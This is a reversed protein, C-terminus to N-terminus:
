NTQVHASSRVGVGAQRDGPPVKKEPTWIRIAPAHRRRGEQRTPHRAASAWLPLVAAALGGRRGARRYARVLRELHATTGERAMALLDLETEPRAIRTIARAKSYSLEGRGL